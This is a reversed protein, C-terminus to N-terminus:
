LIEAIQGQKSTALLKEIDLVNISQKGVEVEMGCKHYNQLLWNILDFSKLFGQLGDENM